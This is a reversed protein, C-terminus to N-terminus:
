ASRRIGPPRHLPTVMRGKLKGEHWWYSLTVLTPLILSWRCLTIWWPKRPPFSPLLLILALKFDRCTLGKCVVMDQWLVTKSPLSELVNWFFLLWSGFFLVAHILRTPSFVNNLPCSEHFSVVILCGTDWWTWNIQSTSTDKFAGVDGSLM